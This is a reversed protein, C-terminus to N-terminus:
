NLFNAKWIEHLIDIKQTSVNLNSKSDRVAKTNMLMADLLREDLQKQASITGNLNKQNLSITNLLKSSHLLSTMDEPNEQNFKDVSSFIKTGKKLNM